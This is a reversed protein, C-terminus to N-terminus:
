CETVKALWAGVHKEVVVIGIHHLLFIGKLVFVYRIDKSVLYSVKMIQKSLRKVLM